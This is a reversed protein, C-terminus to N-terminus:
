KNDILGRGSKKITGNDILEKSLKDLLGNIFIKSKPSSYSKSLDIFENITVKIPISHFNMMELIAMEIIIRDLVAVREADWNILKKNVLDRVEENVEATLKYLTIFFDKDDEWNESLSFLELNREETYKITKKLLSKVIKQNENWHLDLDEFHSAITADTFLVNGLIWKVFEQDEEFTHTDKLNYTKYEETEKISNNFVKKAVSDEKEWALKYRTVENQFGLDEVITKLFLNNDLATKHTKLRMQSLETLFLLMSYYYTLINETDSVMQKQVKVLDEKNKNKYFVEGKSIALKVEECSPAIDLKKLKKEFLQSAEKKLKKLQLYDPAEEANLDPAFVEAIHDLALNFNCDTKERYAFVSQVAKIRLNRRNLM